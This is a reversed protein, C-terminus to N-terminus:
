PNLKMEDLKTRTQSLHMHLKNGKSFIVCFTNNRQKTEGNRPKTIDWM